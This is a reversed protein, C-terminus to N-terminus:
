ALASMARLRALTAAVQQAWPWCSSGGAQEPSGPPCATLLTLVVVPTGAAFRWVSRAM